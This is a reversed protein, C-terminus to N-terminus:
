ICELFYTYMKCTCIISIFHNLSSILSQIFPIDKVLILGYYYMFCNSLNVPYCSRNLNLIFHGAVIEPKLLPLFRYLSEIFSIM